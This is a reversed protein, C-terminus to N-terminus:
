KALIGPFRDLLEGCIADHGQEQERRDFLEMGSQLRRQVVGPQLGKTCERAAEIMEQSYGSFGCQFQGRSLFGHAEIMNTCNNQQAWAPAALSVLIISRILVQM